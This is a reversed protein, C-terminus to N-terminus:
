NQAPQHVNMSQQPTTANFQLVMQGSNPASSMSAYHGSLAAGVGVKGQSRKKTPSASAHQM